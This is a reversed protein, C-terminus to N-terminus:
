TVTATFRLRLNTYDTIADAEAGSLTQDATAPTSSINSHSWTARVTTNEVLDVQLNVTDGGSSDKAYRYRVHHGGSEAPDVLGNLRVECVDTSPRQSSQIYDGDDAVTEDIKAYLPTTTWSGASVDSIPRAFDTALVEAILQPIRLSAVNHPM